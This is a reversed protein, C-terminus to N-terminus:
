AIRCVLLSVVNINYYIDYSDDQIAVVATKLLINSGADFKYM